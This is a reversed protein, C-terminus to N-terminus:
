ITAVSNSALSYVLYNGRYGLIRLLYERLIDHISEYMKWNTTHSQGSLGSHIIDNRLRVVQRLKPNMGVESFMMNLLEEFKYKERSDPSRRFFGHEYLIGKSRAFTDKLNELLVFAFLLKCETPQSPREAQLLYDIVVNLKRRVEIGKFIPYTQEIFEKILIGNCIDLTPRFFEASGFAHYHSKIGSGDPYVHGYRVVRSLGAFSLLWCVRDVIALTKEVDVPTVNEVWIETTAAFKGKFAKYQGLAVDRTQKLVLIKEDCFLEITDRTKQGGQQTTTHGGVLCNAVYVRLDAM